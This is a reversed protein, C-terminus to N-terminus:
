QAGFAGQDEEGEGYEEEYGEYGEYGEEYGEGYGEDYFGDDGEGYFDGEEYYEEEGYYEDEGYFAEQTLPFALSLVPSVPIDPATLDFCHHEPFSLSPPTCPASNAGMPQFANPPQRLSADTPETAFDPLPNYGTVRHRMVFSLSDVTLLTGLGDRVDSSEM